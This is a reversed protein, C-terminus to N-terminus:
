WGLIVDLDKKIQDFFGDENVTAKGTESVPILIPESCGNDSHKFFYISVNDADISDQHIEKRIGNYIHDSHTEVVIQVGCSAVFVLFEVFKSQASPHLHIEPNEIVLLDGPKCSFASIIVEAIYTVGTGINKPRVNIRMNQNRFYVRILETRDIEEAFINYNLIENLWYNVQGSLTLKTTEDYVFISKIPKSWKEAFYSFAYECDVGVGLSNDNSKEYVDKVGVREASCYVIDSKLMKTKVSAANLGKIEVYANQCEEKNNTYDASIKIEEAGIYANMLEDANGISMYKGTFPTKGQKLALLSQIVSSKGISNQGALMTISRMELSVDDFCKFGKIYLKNIM